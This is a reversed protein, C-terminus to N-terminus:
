SLLKSQDMVSVKKQKATTEAAENDSVLREFNPLEKQYDELLKKTDELKQKTNEFKQKITSM